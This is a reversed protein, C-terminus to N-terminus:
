NPLLHIAHLGYLSTNLLNIAHIAHYGNIKSHRIRCLRVIYYGNIDNDAMFGTLKGIAGKELGGDGTLPADNTGTGVPICKPYAMSMVTNNGCLRNSLQMTEMDCIEETM